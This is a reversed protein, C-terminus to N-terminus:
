EHKRERWSIFDLVMNVGAISVGPEWQKLFGEVQEMTLDAISCKAIKLEENIVEYSM